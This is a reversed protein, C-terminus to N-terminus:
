EGGEPEAPTKYILASYRQGSLQYGAKFRHQFGFEHARGDTNQQLEKNFMQFQGAARFVSSSVFMFGCAVVNGAVAAGQPAKQSASVDYALGLAQESKHIKFGYYEVVHPLIIGNQPQRELQGKLIPNTEVLDWWMDAPLVLHRGEKPFAAADCARALKIIDDIVLMKFGNSVAGGTGLVIRKAGANVPSYAYAADEIEKKVIADASKKTYHQIKDFPLAHMYINRIRYNQSDYVDLPVEFVTETPEVSDVDTTRNVYVAPYAGGEPFILTQGQSVFSSLDEAASLWTDITEYESKLSTMWVMRQTDLVVAPAAALCVMGQGTALACGGAVLALLLFSLKLIRNFM